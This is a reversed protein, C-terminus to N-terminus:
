LNVIKVHWSMIETISIKRADLDMIKYKWYRLLLIYKSVQPRFSRNGGERESFQNSRLLLPMGWPEGSLPVREKIAIFSMVFIM